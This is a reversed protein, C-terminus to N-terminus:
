GQGVPLLTGIRHDNPRVASSAVGYAKPFGRRLPSSIKVRVRRTTRLFFASIDSALAAIRM